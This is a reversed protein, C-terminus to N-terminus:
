LVTKLAVVAALILMTWFGVGAPLSSATVSIVVDCDVSLYIHNAILVLVEGQLQPAGDGPFVLNDVVLFILLTTIIKHLFWM